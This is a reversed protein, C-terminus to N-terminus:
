LNSDCASKNILKYKRKMTQLISLFYLEALWCVCIFHKFERITLLINCIKQLLTPLLKILATVAKFFKFHLSQSCLLILM